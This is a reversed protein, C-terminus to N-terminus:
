TKHQFGDSSGRVISEMDETGIYVTVELKTPSSIVTTHVWRFSWHFTQQRERTICTQVILYALMFVLLFWSGSWRVRRQGVKTWGLEVGGRVCRKNVCFM